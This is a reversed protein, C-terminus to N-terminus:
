KLLTLKLTRVNHGAKLQYLYIGSSLNRATWVQHHEGAPFFGDVLKEIEQGAGNLIRLTVHEAKPLYFKITTTPNFPNPFNPALHLEEPMNVRREPTVATNILGAGDGVLEIESLTNTGMGKESALKLYNDCEKDNGSRNGPLALKEAQPDNGMQHSAISDLAVPDKGALLLHYESPSFTPNWPGEGGDANKIGDIVALNVPRAMNLDCITRPLHYRINGGEVHLSSRYGGGHNDYYTIPTIGILNKMSHTVGADYHQKMKPISVFVDVEDLIRNLTFASYYFHNEGVPREVFSDYPAPNNLDVLQAGLANQVAQYGYTIYTPYDWIAEVIYIDEGNVGSDVLLEGVAQLVAPHTWVSERVDVSGLGSLASSGGTLNIKIAVKDGASVVDQIGGLSEFLHQVKQKILAADLYDTAQTVAVQSTFSQGPWITGARLRNFTAAIIGAATVGAAALFKRRSVPNKQGKKSDSTAMMFQGKM